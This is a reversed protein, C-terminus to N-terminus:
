NGSISSEAGSFAIWYKSKCATISFTTLSNIESLEERFSSKQHMSGPKQAFVGNM